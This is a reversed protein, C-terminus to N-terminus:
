RPTTTLRRRASRRAPVSWFGALMSLIGVASAVAGLSAGVLLVRPRRPAPPPAIALPSATVADM